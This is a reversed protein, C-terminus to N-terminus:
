FTPRGDELPVQFFLAALLSSLHLRPVARDGDGSGELCCRDRSTRKASARTVAPSDGLERRAVIQSEDDVRDICLAGGSAVLM